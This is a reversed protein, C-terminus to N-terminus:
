QNPLDVFLDNVPGRLQAAKTNLLKGTSVREASPDIMKEFSLMKGYDKSLFVWRGISNKDIGEAIKTESSVNALLIM